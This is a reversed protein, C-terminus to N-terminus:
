LASSIVCCSSWDRERFPWGILPLLFLPTITHFYLSLTQQIEAAAPRSGMKRSRTGVAKKKKKGLSDGELWVLIFPDSLRLPARWSKRWAYLLARERWLEEKRRFRTNTFLPKHLLLLSPDHRERKEEKSSMANELGGFSSSYQVVHVDIYVCWAHKKCKVLIVPFLGLSGREGEQGTMKDPWVDAPVNLSLLSCNSVCDFLYLLMASGGRLSMTLEGKIKHALPSGVELWVYSSLIKKRM